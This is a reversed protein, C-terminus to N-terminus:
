KSGPQRWSSWWDSSRGSVICEMSNAIDGLKVPHGGPTQRDTQTLHSPYWQASSTTCDRRTCSTQAVCGCNHATSCDTSDYNPIAMTDQGPRMTPVYQNEKNYYQLTANISIRDINSHGKGRKRKVSKTRVPIGKINPIGIPRNPDLTDVNDVNPVAMDEQEQSLMIEDEDPLSLTPTILPPSPPTPPSPTPYYMDDCEIDTELDDSTPVTNLPYLSLLQKQNNDLVRKTRSHSAKLIDKIELLSRVLSM